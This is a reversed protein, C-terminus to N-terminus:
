GSEGIGIGVRQDEPVQDPRWVGTVSCRCRIGGSCDRYGGTKTFIRDYPSLDETTCIFRGDAVRCPECQNKDLIGTQYISGVPGSAFTKVRAETTSAHLAGGVQAQTAATSRQTLTVDVQAAVQEGSTGPTAIRTAERGAALALDAGLHAAVIEATTDLGLDAAASATLTVGSAVGEKVAQAAAITALALMADRLVHAGQDTDVTLSTLAALDDANVADIIQQRLQVRQAATIDQWRRMLADVAQQWAEDLASLDPQDPTDDAAARIQTHDHDKPAAKAQAQAPAQQAQAQAKENDSTMFRHGNWADLAEQPIEIGLLPLILPALSPAGMVIKTLLGRNADDSGDGFEIAPLGYLQAAMTPNFGASALRVVADVKSARDANEEEADTPVPSEFDFVVGKGTAGFMPLLRGNLAQKWRELRPATLMEAMQSRAAKAAAFNVGDTLGMTARSIGWAEFIQDRSLNRLASMDLDKMSFSRDVWKGHELIAVRHANRVGRHQEQWRQRLTDFEDDTLGQEVEIIGGPQASNAFFAGTYDAAAVAGQLDRMLAQVRGLGRYPNNPNPTGKVQIVDEVDLPIKDGDPSKYIWGKLYNKPDPVEIMRDPRVPWLEVPIKGVKVVVLFGDGTASLEIHQQVMEILAAQTMHPNPNAWLNAAAHREPPIVERDGTAGAKPIRYLDWDPNAVATCVRDVVAFLTPVMSMQGMPGGNDASFGSMTSSRTSSYPVPAENRVAPRLAKGLLSAV